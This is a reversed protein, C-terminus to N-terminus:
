MNYYKNLWMCSYDTICKEESKPSKAFYVYNGDTFYMYSSLMLYVIWSEEM